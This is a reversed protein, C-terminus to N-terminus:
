NISEVFRKGARFKPRNSAPIKIKAKTRPNFGETAKRALSYFTGFGVLRVDKKSKVTEMVSEIFAALAKGCDAKTLGSIKAIETILEEKNM